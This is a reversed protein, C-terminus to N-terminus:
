WICFNKKVKRDPSHKVEELLFLCALKEPSLDTM